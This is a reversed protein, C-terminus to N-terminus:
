RFLGHIKNYILTEIWFVLLGGGLLFFLYYRALTPYQPQLWHIGMLKLLFYVAVLDIIFVVTWIIIRLPTKTQEPFLETLFKGPNVYYRM